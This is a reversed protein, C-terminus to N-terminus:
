ILKLAFVPSIKLYKDNGRIEDYVIMFKATPMAGIFSSM